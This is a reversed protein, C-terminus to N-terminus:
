RKRRRLLLVAVAIAALCAVAVLAGYYLAGMDDGNPPVTFTITESVSNGANDYAVLEVTHSGEELDPYVHMQELLTSAYAQTGEEYVLDVLYTHPAQGDLSIEYKDIGSVVDSCTWTVAAEGSSLDEADVLRLEIVTPAATDIKVTTEQVPEHNSEMDVSYFQVTHVGDFQLEFASEYRAYADGDVSCRTEAIGSEDEASLSVLVSSVFWGDEGETGTASATTVPPDLEPVTVEASAWGTMNDTDRVAVTVEFTGEIGFDYEFVPEHSWESDWIGDSTADWTFMLDERSDESDCSQSANFVYQSASTAEPALACVLCAMPPTDPGWYSFEVWPLGCPLVDLRDWEASLNGHEEQEQSWTWFDIPGIFTLTREDSSFDVRDASGYASPESYNLIAQGSINNTVWPEVHELFLIDDDPWTFSLTEGDSLNHCGPTYTYPVMLGNAATGPSHSVHASDVYPNFSSPFESGGPDSYVYDQLTGQWVWCPEGSDKGEWARVAFAVATEIEVDASEPGIEVSMKFDEFWWENPMFADRLWRTMLADMGWTVIDYSLEVEGGVKAAGIDFVMDTWPWEYMWYIDLRSNGEDNMWDRYSEVFGVGEDAWWSDFDDFEESTMDMVAMAAERDLRATGNLSVVWGDFWEDFPILPDPYGRDYWDQVTLYQMRWEIAANGGRPGDDGSLFPLFVPREAMNVESLNRAVVDLRAGSFTDFCDVEYFQRNLYPFSDTTAIDLGYYDARYQWWEGYPVDFFDYWRYEVTRGEPDEVSVSAPTESQVPEGGGGPFVVMSSSLAACLLIAFLRVATGSVTM